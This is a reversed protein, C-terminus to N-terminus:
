FEMRLPNFRVATRNDRVMFVGLSGPVGQAPSGFVTRSGVLYSCSPVQVLTACSESVKLVICDPNQRMLLNLFDLQSAEATFAAPHPYRSQKGTGLLGPAM